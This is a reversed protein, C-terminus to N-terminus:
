KIFYGAVRWHEEDELVLIITEIASSQKQFSSQYKLTLYKGDPADEAWDSVSVKGQKRSILSGVKDRMVQIQRNWVELFIKEQLLASSVNWSQEYKETDVLQLFQEAAITGDTLIKPDVKHSFSPFFVIAAVAALAIAHIHYKKPILM